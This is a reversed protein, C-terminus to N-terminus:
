QEFLVFKLNRVVRFRTTWRKPYSQLRFPFIQSHTIWITLNECHQKARIMHQVSKNQLCCCNIKLDNEKGNPSKSYIGKFM